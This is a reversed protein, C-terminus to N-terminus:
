RQDSQKERHNNHIRHQTASCPRCKSALHLEQARRRNRAFKWPLDSGPVDVGPRLNCTYVQFHGTMSQNVSWTCHAEGCRNTLLIQERLSYRTGQRSASEGVAVTVKHEVTVTNQPYQTRDRLTHLRSDVMLLFYNYLTHLSMHTFCIAQQKRSGM